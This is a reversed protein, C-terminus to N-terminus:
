AKGIVFSAYKGEQENSNILAKNAQKIKNAYALTIENTFSHELFSSAPIIGEDIAKTAIVFSLLASATFTHGTLGKSSSVLPKQGFVAALAAAERRDDATVGTAAAEIYDIDKNTIKANEIASSIAAEAEKDLSCGLLEIDAKQTSLLVSVAVEGANLGDTEFDFPKSVSQSYKGEKQLKEIQENDLKYSAFVLVEKYKGSQLEEFATILAESSNESRFVVTDKPAIALCFVTAKEFDKIKGTALAKEGVMFDSDESIFCRRNLLNEFMEDVGYGATSVAEYAKIFVRNQM